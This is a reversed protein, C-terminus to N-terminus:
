VLCVIIEFCINSAKTLCLANTKTLENPKTTPTNISARGIKMPTLTTPATQENKRPQKKSQSKTHLSNIFFYAIKSAKFVAKSFFPVQM